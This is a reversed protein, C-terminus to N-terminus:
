LSKEKLPSVLSAVSGKLLISRCGGGKRERKRRELGSQSAYRGVENAADVNSEVSKVGGAVPSRGGSGALQLNQRSKRKRGRGRLSNVKGVSMTMRGKKRETEFPNDRQRRSGVPWSWM